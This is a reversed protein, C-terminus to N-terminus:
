LTIFMNDCSRVVLRTSAQQIVGIPGHGDGASVVIPQMM